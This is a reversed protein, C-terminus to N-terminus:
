VVNLVRRAMPRYLVLLGVISLALIGAPVLTMSWHLANIAEAPQETVGQTTEVWGYAALIMGLILPAIANAVKQGFLWIASFAGEIAEGAENRTVDMLDPYMAWPIQQYSGNTMGALVFMGAVITVNISPLVVYLGYLLVIYLTLGLVLAGVKGFKASAFVWGAQSIISGVTFSAFM